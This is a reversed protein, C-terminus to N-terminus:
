SVPLQKNKKKIPICSRAGHTLPAVETQLGHLLVTLRVFTISFDIVYM